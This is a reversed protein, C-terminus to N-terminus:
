INEYIKNIVADMTPFWDLNYRHFFVELNGERKYGGEWCVFTNRYAHFKGLELLTIPSLTETAFYFVRCTARELYDLEWVVQQFFNPDKISQKWSSDWDPRRPNLIVYNQIEPAILSYSPSDPHLGFKKEFKHIFASQWDSAKGMEISGGLFISKKGTVNPFDPPTLVTAKM